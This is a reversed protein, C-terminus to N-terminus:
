RENFKGTESIAYDIQEMTFGRYQMFRLRKAKEKIDTIPKQGYRRQYTELALEFWDVQQEAIAAELDGSALQHGRGDNLIRLKGQGKSIRARVFGQCYRAESLWNHQCFEDIIQAIQEDSAQHQQLKKTFKAVSYEQRGLWTLALARLQNLTKPPENLNEEM